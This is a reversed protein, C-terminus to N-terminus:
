PTVCALDTERTSFRIRIVPIHRMSCRPFCGLFNTQLLRVNPEQTGEVWTDGACPEPHDWDEPEHWPVVGVLRIRSLHRFYEMDRQIENQIGGLMLTSTSFEIPLTPLVIRDVIVPEVDPPSRCSHDHAKVRSKTAM